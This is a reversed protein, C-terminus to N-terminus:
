KKSLYGVVSIYIPQGRQLTVPSVNISYIVLSDSSKGALLIIMSLPYNLYHLSEIALIVAILGYQTQTTSTM